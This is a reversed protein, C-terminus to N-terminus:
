NAVSKGNFVQNHIQPKDTGNRFYAPRNTSHQIVGNVKLQYQKRRTTPWSLLLQEEPAMDDSKPPSSLREELSAYKRGEEEGSSSDSNAAASNDMVTSDSSNQRKTKAYMNSVEQKAAEEQQRIIKWKRELLTTTSCSYKKSMADRSPTDPLSPSKDSEESFARTILIRPSRKNTQQYGVPRPRPRKTTQLVDQQAELGFVRQLILNATSMAPRPAPIASTRPNSHDHSKFSSKFTIYSEDEKLQSLNHDTESTPVRLMNCSSTHAIQNTEKPVINPSDLGPFTISSKWANESAIRKMKNNKHPSSHKGVDLLAESLRRQLCPKNMMSLPTISPRRSGCTSPTRAQIEQNMESKMMKKRWYNQFTKRLVKSKIGYLLGNIPPSCTLFSAALTILQSPVKIPTMKFETQLISSSSQWLIVVYYPFYLIIFSGVFQLITSFANRSRVKPANPSTVTPIFFPNRQHTITVQASLTVEYIASAIRHRHYRAIM